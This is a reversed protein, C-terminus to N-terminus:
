EIFRGLEDAARRLQAQANRISEARRQVAQDGSLVMRLAAGVKEAKGEGNWNRLGVGAEREFVNVISQLARHQSRWEDLQAEMAKTGEAYGERRAATIEEAEAQPVAGGARLLSVVFARSLNAKPNSEPLLPADKVCVLKGSRVVMFGWTHPLEGEAVIKDDAAVISFKDCVRAAAEAKAPQKMERLWDSRSCKVEFAHLVLGRSPWLCMAVADFTRDSNFGAGNRVHTMFAYEGAGGNGPRVHRQRLLKLVEGETM